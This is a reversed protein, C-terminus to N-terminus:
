RAALEPLWQNILDMTPQDPETGTADAVRDIANFFAAVAAAEVAAEAGLDRVLVQRLDSLAERTSDRVVALAFERLAAGGVVGCDSTEDAVLAELDVRTKSASGSV